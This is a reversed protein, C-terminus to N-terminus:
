WANNGHDCPWHLSAWLGRAPVCHPPPGMSCDPLPSLKVCPGGGMGCIQGSAIQAMWFRFAQSSALNGEAKQMCMDVSLVFFHINGWVQQLLIQHLDGERRFGSFVHVFVMSKIHLRAHIKALGALALRGDGPNPGQASQFVFPPIDDDFLLVEPDHGPADTRRGQLNNYATGEHELRAAWKAKMAAAEPSPAPPLPPGSVRRVPLLAKTAGWGQLRMNVTHAQDDKDLEIVTDDSLAPFCALYVDLCTPVFTLHEIFRKRSHYWKCCAHCTDGAAYFKVRRRYGHARGAHTALARRSAFTKPCADCSWTETQASQSVPLVGGPATFARDFRKQWIHHEAVARRYRICARAAARLRGKWRIDLAVFPVWDLISQSQEPGFHHPYFMQFWRCSDHCTRLWSYQTDTVQALCTWLPQPCYQLLRKLYRLRALHALDIPTMMDAMGFLDATDVHTPPTGMLTFKVMLGMPKRLHNQWREWDLDSASCWTHANYLMRSMTLSKFAKVKTDLGVYAKSYLPRALSGWAAKALAARSQIDRACKPPAQLWTGLHKYSHTVSLSFPQEADQWELRSGQDAIQQKLKKSGKGAVAWLVESKGRDFNLNMGRKSTAQHMAATTIKILAMLHDLSQAHLAVAVDDVYAIDLFAADPMDQALAFSATRTPQGMWACDAHQLIYEKADQLILRMIMNFLLDGLPDGPRTGRTTTCIDPLQRVQFHTGSMTDRVVHQLHASAGAIANDADTAQLWTAIDEDPVGMQHLAHILCTADQPLYMLSQRLVSYFASRLDFFVIAGPVKHAFCAAQHAQLLHHALDTGMGRRSGLQLAAIKSIWIEELQSRIARHYLKGTYDSIFISRYSQPDDPPGKGKHLPVLFGGRWTVPEQACAAVKTTLLTLQKAIVPGAAKLVSPTIQNPGPTKGRKLKAIGAQLQWATPFVSAQQTDVPMPPNGPVPPMDKPHCILGAEIAAFQKMWIEQQEPFNAAANGDPKKLLPIPRAPAPRKHRKGGLRTIAAYMAKCDSATGAQQMRVLLQDFFVGLDSRVKPRVQAEIAKLETKFDDNQMLHMARGCDLIHRKMTIAQLTDPSLQPRRRTKKKQEFFQRAIALVQQEYLTCHDNPHVQWTPLPLTELAKQFAQCQLPDLMADEDWKIRSSGSSVRMWGHAELIVPIHDEHTFSGDYDTMTTTRKTMQFAAENALIYDIRHKDGNPRSWTPSPGHQFHEFTSPVFLELDQLFREFCETQPGIKTAGHLGYFPTVQSALGANADVCIWVLTSPILARLLEATEHWWQRLKDIPLMGDGLSKQLCPAHLVAFVCSCSEFDLRVVLRRPEAVQVSTSAAALRVPRGKSDTCLPLSNHLWLECGLHPAPTPQCGSAIIRYNDSQFQGQSTRTEQLGVVHMGASHFQHDIRATRCGQKRGIEHHQDTHELALVNISAIKLHFSAAPEPLTSEIEVPTVPAAFAPFQVVTQDFRPPLCAKLQPSAYNTWDWAIDHPEHALAHLDAFDFKFHQSAHPSTCFKALADALENWPNNTHGRIEEFTTRPGNWENLLRCLQALVPHAVTTDIHQAITRSLSLDPRICFQRGPAQQLVIAHAALIATFEAAINDPREAGVWQPDAPALAVTGGTVGLLRHADGVKAVVVAAWGAHTASTSGDVYIEYIPQIGEMM